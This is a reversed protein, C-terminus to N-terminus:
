FVFWKGIYLGWYIFICEIGVLDWIVFLGWELFICKGVIKIMIIDIGKKFKWIDLLYEVFVNSLM